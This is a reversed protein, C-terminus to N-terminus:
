DMAGPGKGWLQYRMREAEIFQAMFQAQLADLVPNGAGAEHLRVLESGTLGTLPQTRIAFTGGDGVVHDLRSHNIQDVLEAEPVGDKVRQMIDSVSIRGNSTVSLTSPVWDPTGPPKGPQYQGPPTSPVVGFGSELRDIDVPQPYCFGCAGLGEGLVWYRTLRDVDDVLSQQLFDLVPDAVGLAKLKPYDSGRLGYTTGSTRVRQIVDPAAAGSKSMNVVEAIPLPTRPTFFTACSTLALSVFLVLAQRSIM